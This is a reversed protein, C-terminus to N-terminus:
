YPLSLSTTVRSQNNFEFYFDVAVLLPEVLQWISAVSLTQKDGSSVWEATAQGTHISSFINEKGELLKKM